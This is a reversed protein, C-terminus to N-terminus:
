PTWTKATVAYLALLSMIDDSVGCRSPSPGPYQKIHSQAQEIYAASWTSLPYDDLTLDPYLKHLTHFLYAVSIPGDYLGGGPPIHHPPHNTILRNLSALLQKHPDRRGIEADNRFYRTAPTSTHQAQSAGKDSM